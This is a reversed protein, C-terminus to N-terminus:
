TFHIKQKLINTTLYTNNDISNQSLFHKHFKINKKTLSVKFGCFHINFIPPFKNNKRPNNTLQEASKLAGKSNVHFSSDSSSNTIVLTVRVFSFIRLTSTGPLTELKSLNQSRYPTHPM